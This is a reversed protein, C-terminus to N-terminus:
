WITLRVNDIWQHLALGTSDQDLQWQVGVVDRWDMPIADYSKNVSIPKGDVVLTAYRYQNGNREMYWQIHHWVNAAWRPCPISTGEWRNAVSNWVDWVGNGFNCQSGIMFEHGGIAQFLDFESTWIHAATTSDQYVWFDWLFRSANQNGPFTRTFLANSWAPGGIFLERSSGSRSPQTTFPAMWYNSTDHTGQACLSCSSWGDTSNQLNDFVTANAPPQPLASAPTANAAESAAPAGSGSVNVTQSASTGNAGTPDWARVYLVHAGASLNVQTALSTSAANAQYVPQDDAYVAWGSVGKASSATAKVAVPNATATTPSQLTVQIGQTDSQTTPTAPTGGPAAPSAPTTPAAALPQSFKGGGGCGTAFWCLGAALCVFVFQKRM